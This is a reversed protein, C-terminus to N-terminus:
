TYTKGKAKIWSAFSEAIFQDFDTKVENFIYGAHDQDQVDIEIIDHSGIMVIMVKRQWEYYQSLIKLEFDM